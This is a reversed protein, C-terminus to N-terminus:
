NFAFNSLFNLSNLHQLNHNSVTYEEWSKSQPGTGRFQKFVWLLRFCTYNWGKLMLLKKSSAFNLIWSKLDFTAYTEWSKSFQLGTEGFKEFTGFVTLCTYSWGWIDEPMLLKENSAFNLSNFVKNWIHTKGQNLFNCGM